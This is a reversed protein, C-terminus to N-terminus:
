VKLFIKKKYLIYLIIWCITTLGIGNKILPTWNEPLINSLGGFFFNVTYKFDFIRKGMYITIPNMGIVVFFFSWKKLNWVDIILYFMSFLFLSLGGAFCVFSSTWLHKNIPFVINWIKGVIILTVAALVLYFVKRLPKKKLYNSLMFEGTFMGLLATGTAPLLTLMQESNYYHGPMILRDLYGTLNGEESFAGKGDVPFLVLLIWYGVLLVICWIIRIHLRTNIYILSAFMWALGIIGLVSKYDLNAFDLSIKNSYILGLIVLILGRKFIHIYLSKRSQNMAIRKAFSFPFSIGAIFLFLPFIIDYFTFGHWLTHRMQGAWWQFVPWGIITALGLFIHKGGIIWFMDFGRLADLSQLRKFASKTENEM